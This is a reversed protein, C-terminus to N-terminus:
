EAGGDNEEVKDGTATAEMCERVGAGCAANRSAGAAVECTGNTSPIEVAGAHRHSRSAATARRASLTPARNPTKRGCTSRNSALRKRM